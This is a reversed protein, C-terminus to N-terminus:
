FKLKLGDREEIHTHLTAQSNGHSICPLEKTQHSCLLLKHRYSGDKTEREEKRRGRKGERGEEEERGEGYM